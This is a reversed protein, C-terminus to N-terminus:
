NFLEKNKYVYYWVYDYDTLKSVEEFKLINGAENTDALFYYQLDRYKHKSNNSIEHLINDIYEVSARGRGMEMAYSRSDKSSYIPALIKNFETNKLYKWVVEEMGGVDSSDDKFYKFVLNPYDEHTMVIKDRGAGIKKINPMDLGDINFSRNKEYKKGADDMKQFLSEPIDIFENSKKYFYKLKRKRIKNM